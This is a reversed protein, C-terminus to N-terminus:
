CAKGLIKLLKKKKIDKSAERGTVQEYKRISEFWQAKQRDNLEYFNKKETLLTDINTDINTNPVLKTGGGKWNPVVGGILKTGSSLDISKNKLQLTTLEVEGTKLTMLLDAKDTMFWENWEDVSRIATDQKNEKRRTILGIQELKIYARRITQESLDLSSAIRPISMVCWGKYKTNNALGRVAELVCYENISLLYAKRLPHIITTYM